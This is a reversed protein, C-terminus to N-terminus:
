GLWYGGGRRSTGGLGRDLTLPIQEGSGGIGITQAAVVIAVEEVCQGPHRKPHETWSTGHAADLSDRVVDRQHAMTTLLVM